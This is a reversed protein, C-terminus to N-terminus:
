RRITLINIEEAFSGALKQASLAGNSWPRLNQLLYKFRGQEECNIRIASELDAQKRQM